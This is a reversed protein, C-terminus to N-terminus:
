CLPTSRLSTAWFLLISSNSVCYPPLLNQGLDLNLVHYLALVIKMDLRLDWHNTIILNNQGHLINISFLDIIILQACIILCPMPASTVSIQFALIIVYFVTIPVFELFLFLPVGYWADTCNVCRYGFLTASPGFGDACESCVPGKRNLPGCMYDNLQSLYTPLLVRGPTTFNYGNPQFYPCDLMSVLKTDNNCTACHEARLTPKGTWRHFANYYNSCLLQLHQYSVNSDAESDITTIHKLSTRAQKEVAITSQNILTILIYASVIFSSM